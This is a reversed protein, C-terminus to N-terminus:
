TQCAAHLEFCCTFDLSFALVCCVLRLCFRLNLHCLLSQIQNIHKWLAQSKVDVRQAPGGSGVMRQLLVLKQEAQRIAAPDSSPACSTAQAVASEGLLLALVVPLVKRMISRM